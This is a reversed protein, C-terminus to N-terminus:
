AFPWDPLGVYNEALTTKAAVSSTTYELEALQRRADFPCQGPIRHLLLTMWASFRQAKWVRSLCTSSYANLLDHVGERYFQTIARSLLHVDSIALNMGKAGTPPVIHASDGALFLRGFQMPEMVVSRMGTVSKQLVPGENLEWGHNDRLRLHLEQWIRDDPWEWLNENPDCQLYLRSVQPSRMSLLAFGREHYAYVLEDSSPPTAALIGLWAFPYTREYVTLAASPISPRTIGHFGDCGAIFDCTLECSEDAHVFRVSPRQSELDHLTAGSVEFLIEGHYELRAKILDKVVEHQGYVTIRKGGTLSPFDIRHGEGNFRIEIGNHVLGERQMREGLGASNLLDVTGQELVGARIRAEVYERTCNESIVSEIGALHLLHALMLGAPGAGVIGVQTRLKRM